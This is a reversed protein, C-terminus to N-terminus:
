KQPEWLKHHYQLEGALDLAVSPKFDNGLFYGVACDFWDVGQFSEENENAKFWYIFNQIAENQTVSM